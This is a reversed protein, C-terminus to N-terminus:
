HRAAFRYLTQYGMPRGDCTKVPFHAGLFWSLIEKDRLPNSSYVIQASRVAGLPSIEFYIDVDTYSFDAPISNGFMPSAEGTIEEAGTCYRSVQSGAPPSFEDAAFDRAPQLKEITVDVSRKNWASFAFHRPFRKTDFPAYDSYEFRERFEASFGLGDEISLVESTASDMCIRSEGKGPGILVCTEERAGIKQSEIRKLKAGALMKKRLALSDTLEGLQWVMLPVGETTRKWYYNEGRAVDTEQYDPFGIVRRFRDPAAWAMAYVGDTANGRETLRVKAKLVFPGSGAARIDVLDWAKNLIADADATRDSVRVNPLAVLAFVEATACVLWVILRTQGLSMPPPPYCADPRRFLRREPRQTAIRLAWIRLLIRIVRPM